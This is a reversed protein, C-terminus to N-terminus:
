GLKGCEVKLLIMEMNLVGPLISWERLMENGFEALSPWISIEREQDSGTNSIIQEAFNACYSM